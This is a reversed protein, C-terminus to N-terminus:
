FSWWEMLRGDNLLRCFILNWDQPSWMEEIRSNTNTCISFLSLFMDRLIRNGCWDDLWFKTKDGRGVMIQSNIKLSVWFTEFPRGYGFGMLKMSKVLVGSTRKDM